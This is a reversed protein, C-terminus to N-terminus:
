SGVIDSKVDAATPLDKLVGLSRLGGSVLVGRVTAPARPSTKSFELVGCPVRTVRAPLDPKPPSTKSFELVGCSRAKDYSGTSGSPPPSTKSFELVGCARGREDVGPGRGRTPLDKLVGLSRLISGQGNQAVALRTPLDKLVGLSRLSHDTPSPRQEDPRPSTKSFELVGCSCSM